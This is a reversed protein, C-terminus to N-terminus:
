FSQSQRMADRDPRLILTGCDACKAGPRLGGSSMVMGSARDSSRRFHLDSWGMGFAVWDLGSKQMFFEGDVM